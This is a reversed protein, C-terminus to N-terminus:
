PVLESAEESNASENERLDVATVSYTYTKGSTVNTDRFAPTKVIDSNMKVMQGSEERRYVNYGALDPDTNPAWLLDIFPQQGPGSFVAQLGTPVGPPYIDRTFVEVEPTDDGEVLIAPQDGKPIVTVVAASYLYYKGWEFTQDYFEPRYNQEASTDQEKQKEACESYSLEAIQNPNPNTELRRFIRLRYDLSDRAAQAACTWTILVGQATVHVGFDTPATLTPALPVQVQNSLGASRGSDNLAEVGYTIMAAPNQQELELPLADTYSVTVRESSQKPEPGPPVEGVVPACQSMVAERSRCILTPGRRRVSQRDTTLAPVTWFLQVKDGKRQAHLDTPPKPLELSPPVPAGISACGILFGTAALALLGEVCHRDSRM